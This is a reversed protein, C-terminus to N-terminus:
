FCSSELWCLYLTWQKCRKFDGNCDISIKGKIAVSLKRDHFGIDINNDLCNPCLPDVIHHVPQKLLQFGRHVYSNSAFYILLEPIVGNVLYQKQGKQETTERTWIVVQSLLDVLEIVAAGLPCWGMHSLPFDPFVQWLLHIPMKSLICRDTMQKHFAKVGHWDMFEDCLLMVEGYSDM